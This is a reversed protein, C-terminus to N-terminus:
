PAGEGGAGAGARTHIEPRRAASEGGVLTRNLMPHDEHSPGSDSDPHFAIVTLAEGDTHFCHDAGDPIVFADGPALARAGGPTVCRGHGRAIVGARLSPHAHMTQRTGPPLHLLNLCPDGLVPPPVILTDTGGDIYRLRGRAEIPGGIQFLGAFGGQSIVLGLGGAVRGEGPLAFFMGEGLEFRGAPADVRAVGSVVYGFHTAGAELALTGGGWGALWVAHRADSADVALGPSLARFLITGGHRPADHRVEPPAHSTTM